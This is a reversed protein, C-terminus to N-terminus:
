GQDPAPDVPRFLILRDGEFLVPHDDRFVRKKVIGAEYGNDLGLLPFDGTLIYFLAIEKSQMAVGAAREAAIGNEQLTRTIERLDSDPERHARIPLLAVITAVVAAGPALWRYGGDRWKAFRPATISHLGIACIWALPPFLPLAYNPQKDTFASLAPLAILIWASGLAFLGIDQSPLRKKVALFVTFLAALFWPWKYNFLMTLYYTWSASGHDGRMRDAIQDGFYVSLFSDGFTSIMHLHWPLASVVAGFFGFVLFPLVHRKNGSIAMWVALIPLLVLSVIPKCLLGLGLLLGAVFFWRRSRESEVGRMTVWTAAMLFFLQWFDLSIERIRRFFDYSLTLIIGSTLGLGASSLRSAILVTFVVVGCGALISPIRAAILNDRGGIQMGLGHILIALPPKNFYPREPHVHPSFLNGSEWMWHGVGAYLATDRRFDGQDLHPLSVALFLILPVWLRRM